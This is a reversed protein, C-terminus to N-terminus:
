WGPNQDYSGDELVMGTNNGIETSPIPRYTRAVGGVVLNGAGSAGDNNYTNYYIVLQKTRRLDEWRTYEGFLELAREDLIIDIPRITTPDAYVKTAVASSQYDALSNITGANARNRVENVDSLYSEDSCTSEDTSNKMMKAEARVLYMDSITFVPVDRFGGKSASTVSTEPDDWKKCLLGESTGDYSSASLYGSYNNTNDDSYYLVTTPSPLSTTNEKILYQDVNNGVRMLITQAKTSTSAGDKAAKRYLDGNAAFDAEIEADTTAASYFRYKIGCDNVNGNYYAYYGIKPWAAKAAEPTNDGGGYMKTMFTADFREDGSAYLNLMKKNPNNQHNGNKQFYKEATQYYGSFDYQWGNGSTTLTGETEAAARSYQISFIEEDNGENSPSWKEEYTSCLAGSSIATTAWTEAESFYSTGNVTFKGTTIDSTSTELDWGAALNLKAILAACAAKSARGEHNTEDLAGSNYAETVSAIESDYLTKLDTRPYNRSSSNIFATSYPVRGFQQTLLYYALGRIFKAQATVSASGGKELAANANNIVLYLQSYMGEVEGDGATFNYTNYNSTKRAENIYIDTGKVMLDLNTYGDFVQQLQKYAYTLYQDGTIKTVDINSRNEPELYDSCSTFTVGALMVSVLSLILSKKM